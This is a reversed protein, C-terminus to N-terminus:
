REALGQAALAAELAELDWMQIVHATSATVLRRGDRSFAVDETEVAYPSELTMVRELTRTDFVGIRQGDLVAALLWGTADFAM